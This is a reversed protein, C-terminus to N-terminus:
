GGGVFSIIEIHDRDQIAITPWQERPIVRLNVEMVVREPILGRHIVLGQLTMAKGPWAEEKGNIRIHMTEGKSPEAFLGCAASHKRLKDKYWETKAAIDEAQMIDRILAVRTAGLNLLMELNVINVGGIFVVPKRAIRLAERIDGTGIHYNKTRTPFVPGFALYDADLENAKQFQELSHTSVGIIRDRGIWQRVTDVPYRQLDEQGLHVGDADLRKALQPDDNVIFTVRNKKCLESLASGLRLLAAPSKHKERMQLVDVGGAVAQEAISMLPRRTGYEGSLVLYLCGAKIAPTEAM